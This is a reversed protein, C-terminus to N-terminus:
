AASLGNFYGLFISDIVGESFWLSVNDYNVGSLNTMNDYLGSAKHRNLLGFYETSWKSSRTGNDWVVTCCGNKAANEVFYAAHKKRYSERARDSKYVSGWETILVGIGNETYAKGFANLMAKVGSNPDDKSEDWVDDTGFSFGNPSYAHINMLLRDIVEDDPMKFKAVANIEPSYTMYGINGYGCVSLFRKRNNVSGQGRVIDVYLQNYENLNKICERYENKNAVPSMNWKLESQLPENLNEFVLREDYDCFVDSVQTWVDTVLKKTKAYHADDLYYAGINPTDMINLIVFMDGKAFVYDVVEKIRNIWDTNITGDASIHNSWSVPVRMTRFGRAYVTDVTQQTVAGRYIDQQNRVECFMERNKFGLEEVISNAYDSEPYGVLNNEFTNGLNWGVGMKGVFDVSSIKSYDEAPNGTDDPKAVSGDDPLVSSDSPDSSDRTESSDAGSESGNRSSVPNGGPSCSILCIQALALIIVLLLINFKRM